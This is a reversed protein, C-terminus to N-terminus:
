SRRASIWSAKRARPQQRTQKLLSWFENQNSRKTWDLDLEPRELLRQELLQGQCPVLTVPAVQQDSCCPRALGHHSGDIKSPQPFREWAIPKQEDRVTGFNEILAQSHEPM